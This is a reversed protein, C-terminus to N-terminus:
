YLIVSCYVCQKLLGIPGALKDSQQTYNMQLIQTKYRLLRLYTPVHFESVNNMQYTVSEFWNQCTEIRSILKALKFRIVPQSALPKGFVIRQTAWRNDLFILFSAQMRFRQRVQPM